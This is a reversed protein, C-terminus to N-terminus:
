AGWQHPSIWNQYMGDVLGNGYMRYAPVSAQSAELAEWRFVEPLRGGADPQGRRGGIRKRWVVGGGRIREDRRM